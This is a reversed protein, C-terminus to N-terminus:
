SPIEALIYGSIKPLKIKRGVRGRNYDLRINIIRNSLIVHM